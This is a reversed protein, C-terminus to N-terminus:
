LILSLIILLSFFTKIVISLDILSSRITFVSERQCSYIVNKIANILDDDSRMFLQKNFTPRSQKNFKYIFERQNM